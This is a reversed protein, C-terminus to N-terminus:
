RNLRGYDPGEHEVRIDHVAEEPTDYHTVPLLLNSDMAVTARHHGDYITPGGSLHVVRAPKQFGRHEVSDKVKQVKDVPGFGYRERQARAQKYSDKLMESAEPMPRLDYDGSRMGRVEDPTALLQLQKFQPGLSETM